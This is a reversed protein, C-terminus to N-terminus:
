FLAIQRADESHPKPPYILSVILWQKPFRHLTGMLFMLNRTPLQAELKARFPVVWGEPGHSRLTNRYLQCVEWDVIKHTHSKPEDDGWCEYSYYFDFPVKELRRINVREEQEDFLSPQRQLQELKEIEETTWKESASKRIHLATIKAPRVLGLTVNHEM